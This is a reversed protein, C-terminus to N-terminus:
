VRIREYISLIGKNYLFCSNAIGNEVALANSQPVLCNAVKKGAFRHWFPALQKTDTAAVQYKNLRRGWSVALASLQSPVVGM